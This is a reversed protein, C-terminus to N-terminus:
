ILCLVGCIQPKEPKEVPTIICYINREHTEGVKKM